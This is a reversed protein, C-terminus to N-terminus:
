ERVLQWGESFDFIPPAVVNISVLSNMWNEFNSFGSAIPTNGIALSTQVSPVPCVYGELYNKTVENEFENLIWSVNWTCGQINLGFNRTESNLPLTESDSRIQSPINLNKIQLIFDRVESLNGASVCVSTENFEDWKRYSKISGWNSQSSPSVTFFTGNSGYVLDEIYMGDIGPYSVGFTSGQCDDEDYFFTRQDSVRQISGVPPSTWSSLGSSTLLWYNGEVKLFNRKPSGLNPSLSEIDLKQNNAQNYLSWKATASEGPLGQLGQEGKAGEL